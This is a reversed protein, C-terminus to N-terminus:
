VEVLGDSGVIVPTVLGQCASEEGALTRRLGPNPNTTLKNGVGVLVHGGPLSLHFLANLLGRFGLGRLQPLTLSWPPYSQQKQQFHHYQSVAPATFRKNCRVRHMQPCLTLRGEPGRLCADRAQAKVQGLMRLPGNIRLM